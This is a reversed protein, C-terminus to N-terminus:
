SGHPAAAPPITIPTSAPSPIPGSTISPVSSTNFADGVGGTQSDLNALAARDAAIGLSSEPGCKRGIDDLEAGLDESASPGNEAPGTPASIDVLQPLLEIEEELDDTGFQLRAAPRRGAGARPM